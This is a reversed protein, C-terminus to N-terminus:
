LTESSINRNDFLSFFFGNDTVILKLSFKNLLSKLLNNDEETKQYIVLKMIQEAVKKREEEVKNYIAM